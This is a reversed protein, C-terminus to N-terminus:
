IKNLYDYACRLNVKQKNWELHEEIRRRAIAGMRLRKESDGLLELITNAFQIESNEKIYAGAEGATVEGEKTYFQVVPKGFTMYDMIKIMTSKDTFENRFEPNVGIDITALIEYFLKNSVFGTFWVYRELSLKKVLGVLKKVYRGPGVIIFKIDTRNREKVIYDVIHLLNDIGEQQGIAGVYGVLYNFGNRLEPNPKVEPIFLLNPGNRVVFVQNRSKGGRKTAFEKYSENTSIVIDSIKFTLWEMVRLIFYFFGKRGFKAIYTEPVIDHHDFIYKVGFLKFPLAILFLHDPPNAAHIIDFQNTISIRISLIIEWFFANIYEILLSITGVGELPFPHRYIRIGDIYKQRNESKNNKPSIISVEYGFEKVALAEYWVRKDEPVFSNEVIFLVHKRKV